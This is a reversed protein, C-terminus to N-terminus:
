IYIVNKNIIILEFLNKKELFSCLSYLDLVYDPNGYLVVYQKQGLVKGLQDFEHGPNEWKRYM